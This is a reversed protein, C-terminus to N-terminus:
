CAASFLKWIVRSLISLSEEGSLASLPQTGRSYRGKWLWHGKCCKQCSLHSGEWDKMYMHIFIGLFNTLTQGLLVSPYFFGTQRGIYGATEPTTHNGTKKNLLRYLPILLPYYYRFHIRLWLFRCISTMGINTLIKFIGQCAKVRPAKISVQCIHDLFERTRINLAIPCGCEKNRYEKVLNERFSAFLLSFKNPICAWRFYMLFYLSKFYLLMM